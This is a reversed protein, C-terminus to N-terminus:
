GGNQTIYNVIHEQGTAKLAKLFKVCQEETTLRDLLADNRRYVTTQSRVDALQRLTLVHLSLLRDLLQFDPEILDALRDKLRTIASLIRNEDDSHMM